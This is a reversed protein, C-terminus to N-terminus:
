IRNGSAISSWGSIYRHHTDLVKQELQDICEIEHNLYSKLILQTSKLREKLGGLRIEIVDFGYTKREAYWENRFAVLYEDISKITEPIRQDAIQNLTNVDNNKYASRLDISLTAKYKLVKCLATATKFQLNFQNDTVNSLISEKKEYEAAFSPLVIQDVWGGLPDNYLLAKATYQPHRSHDVGNLLAPTDLLMYDDFSMHFTEKFRKKLWERDEGNAYCYEAYQQLVAMVSYNSCEAGNDGWATAIVMPIKEEKAIKLQLDNAKLSFDNYPVIDGWKWAGGAFLLPSNFQRHCHLMHRFRKENFTYYDWYVLSVEEPVLDIVEQPVEGETIYYKGFPIRFFMDSWIMPKFNYKKCIEVVRDLHKLFIKAPDTYGHEQLYKGLGLSHAEDMGIHIRDTTYCARCSRIMAEIFQYTEENDVLLINATDTIKGFDPWRLSGELHALTQMCPITEIGFLNAYAVIEKLESQTFRGRMYGFFPYEPVEYTDETYLMFSTFGMMALMRIMRKASTINFVANRSNDSMLCLDEHAPVESYQEKSEMKGPLMTLARFFEPIKHYEIVVPVQDAIIRLGCEGKQVTVPIGDSTTEFSLRDKVEELPASLEDPLNLFTIKM